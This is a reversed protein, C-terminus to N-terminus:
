ASSFRPIGPFLPFFGASFCCLFLLLASSHFVYGPLLTSNGKCKKTATSCILIHSYGRSYGRIDGRIGKEMYLIGGSVGGTKRTILAISLTIDGQMRPQEKITAQLMGAGNNDKNNGSKTAMRRGKSCQSLMLNLVLLQLM